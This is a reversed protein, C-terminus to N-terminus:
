SVVIPNRLTGAVQVSSSPDALDVMQRNNRLQLRNHCSLPFERAFLDYKRFQDRLGPATAQYDAVCETVLQWFEREEMVGETDLIASLFRFFGDFVDTFIPLIKHEEPLNVRIREVEPPLPMEQDMVIVEEAIDKFVARSVVGQADLVLIVNEGHPMFALEYAYYCHLLPTLYARLYQRLWTAPDMGSRRILAGVVSKGQHDVHLLSAMTALREGHKLSPVPSERWLAALMKRYPSTRDTASEYELHRYGVAALERIITLGTSRLIEDKEILDAVWDNIAPTAAMYAASLGRMFGMNIVSLSTKVYHKAPNTINFFTRISQQALYEDDSEGLHILHGRALEAAFTVCLINTWQWPHVPIFLYEHPDLGRERLVSRFRGVTSDGLEGRLLSEYDVGAGATFAARSRHAALWVLRVPSGAEPAYAVYDDSGFGLRGNNAVFCPHGESMGTEIAQFDASALQDASQITRSAKYCSSALTSSIEELYVPLVQDSLGLTVRLDIFFELPDLPLESDLLSDHRVISSADVDWHNLALVRAKYRYSIRGDDSNVRYHGDGLEEPALLREHAFESLAKRILSRGAVAWAEPTLHRMPTKKM